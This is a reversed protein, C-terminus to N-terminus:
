EQPHIRQNLGSGGCSGVPNARVHGYGDHGDHLKKPFPKASFQSPEDFKEVEDSLYSL